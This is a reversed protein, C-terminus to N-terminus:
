YSWLASLLIWPGVVDFTWSHNIIQNILYIYNFNVARIIIFDNKSHKTKALDEFTSYSDSIDNEPLYSLKKM